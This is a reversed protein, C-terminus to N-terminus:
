RKIEEEGDASLHSAMQLLPHLNPTATPRHGITRQRKSSMAPLFPLRHPGSKDVGCTAPPGRTGMGVAHAGREGLHDGASSCPESLVMPKTEADFANTQATAPASSSFSQAVDRASIPMQLTCADEGVSSCACHSGKSFIARARASAVVSSTCDNKTGASRALERKTRQISLAFDAVDAQRRRRAILEEPELDLSEGQQIKTWCDQWTEAGTKSPLQEQMRVHKRMEDNLTQLWRQHNDVCSLNDAKATWSTSPERLLADIHERPVLLGVAVHGTLLSAQCVPPRTTM